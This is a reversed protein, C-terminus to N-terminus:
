VSTVRGAASKSRQLHIVSELEKLMSKSAERRERLSAQKVRDEQIKVMREERSLRNRTRPIAIAEFIEEDSGTSEPASVSSTTSHTFIEGNLARLAETPSGGDVATTGGLSPAPSRLGSSAQSVRREHKDINVALSSKGAEWAQMLSRLDAGISEYQAMLDSVPDSCNDSQELTRNTEERLLLM